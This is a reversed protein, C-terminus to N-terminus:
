PLPVCTATFIELTGSQGLTLPLLLVGPVAWNTGSLNAGTMIASDFTAGDLQAGTLDADVLSAGTFDVDRLDAGQLNACDLNAGTLDAGRLDVENMRAETLVAGVFVSWQLDTYGGVLPQPRFDAKLLYADTFDVSNALVNNFEAEELVAGYTGIWFSAGNLEAGEFDAYSFDTESLDANNLVCGSFDGGQASAGAVASSCQSGYWGGPGPGGCGGALVGLSLLAVVAFLYAGGQLKRISSGRVSGFTKRAKM